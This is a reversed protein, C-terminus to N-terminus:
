NKDFIFMRNAILLRSDNDLKFKLATINEFCLSINM